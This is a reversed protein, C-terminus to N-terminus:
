KYRPLISTNILCNISTELRTSPNTAVEYRVDINGLTNCYLIIFIHIYTQNSCCIMNCTLHSYKYTQVQITM